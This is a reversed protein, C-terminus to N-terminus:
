RPLLSLFMTLPASRHRTSWLRSYPIFTLVTSAEETTPCTLFPSDYFAVAAHSDHHNVQVSWRALRVTGQTSVITSQTRVM